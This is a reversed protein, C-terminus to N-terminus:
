KRKPPTLRVLNVVGSGGSKKKARAPKVPERKTIGQGAGFMDLEETPDPMRIVGTNGIFDLMAENGVIGDRHKLVEIFLQNGSCLDPRANWLEIEDKTWGNSGGTLPKFNTNWIGVLLAVIREIDGAEGIRTPHMRFPNAVERTFQAGLIIPLGTEVAVEKLLICIQKLQEQRSLKGKEDKLSLLQFYDIFVAGLEAEKHLYRIADCLEEATLDSYHVALRGTEVLEGFFARRKQHFLTVAERKIYADGEGKYYSFLSRRNNKALEEATYTNLAKVLVAEKSEEYTFLVVRRTKAATLALNILMATKGHSTPAAFVSLAGAPLLLEEAENDNGWGKPKVTYGTPISEPVTSLKAMIDAETTPILLKGLETERSIARAESLGRSLKDIAKGQEGENTLTQAESLLQLVTERQKEKARTTELKDTVTQLTELKIGMAEVEPMNTFAKLYRDRDLPELEVGTKVVELLLADETIADLDGAYREVLEKLAYEWLAYETGKDEIYIRRGLRRAGRAVKLLESTKGTGSIVVEGAADRYAELRTLDPVNTTEGTVRNVINVSIGVEVLLLPPEPLITDVKHLVAREREKPQYPDGYGMGRLKRATEKIDGNCELVSFVDTASLAKGNPLNTSTSFVFLRRKGEHWNGSIASTTVGSRLLYVKGGSRRVVKWGHATLLGVVDGRENYDELPTLPSGSEKPKREKQPTPEVEPMQDFDVAICWLATRQEPTITPITTYSGQILEYGETPAAVLYGGEGRTELLAHKTEGKAQEEQTAPRSALKANGSITECKYLIHRGGRVTKSITLLPWLDPLESQIAKSLDSWLTGTLDYKTDVDLLELSGSAAGTLIAIGKAKGWPKVEGGRIARGEELEIFEEVTLPQSRIPNVVMVAPDKPLGDKKSDKTPMVALGAEIYEKAQKSHKSM